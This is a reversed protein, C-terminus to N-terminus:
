PVSVRPPTKMKRQLIGVQQRMLFIELDKRSDSSGLFLFFDLFLTLIQTISWFMM